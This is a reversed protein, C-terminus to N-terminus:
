RQNRRCGRLTQRLVSTTVAAITAYVLAAQFLRATLPPYSTRSTAVFPPHQLPHNLWNPRTMSFPTRSQCGRLFELEEKISMGAVMYPTSAQPCDVPPKTDAPMFDSAPNMKKSKM